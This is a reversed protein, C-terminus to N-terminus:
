AESAEEPPEGGVAGLDGPDEATRGDPAKRRRSAGITGGTPHTSKRPIYPQRPIPVKAGFALLNWRELLHQARAVDPAEPLPPPPADPLTDGIAEVADLGKSWVRGVHQLVDGLDNFMGSLVDGAPALRTRIPAPHVAQSHTAYENREPLVHGEPVSQSRGEREMLRGFGYTQNRMHSEISAWRGLEDPEQAFLRLLSEVEMLYRCEDLPHPDPGSIISEVGGTAAEVSSSLLYALDEPIGDFDALWQIQAALQGIARILIDHDPSMRSLHWKRRDHNVVLADGVPGWAPAFHSLLDEYSPESGGPYARSQDMGLVPRGGKKPGRRGKSKKKPV